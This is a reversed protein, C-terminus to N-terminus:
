PKKDYSKRVRESFWCRPQEISLQRQFTIHNPFLHVARLRCVASMMDTIM